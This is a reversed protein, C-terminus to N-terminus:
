KTHKCTKLEEQAGASCSVEVHCHQVFFHWAVRYNTYPLTVCVYKITGIQTSHAAHLAPPSSCLPSSDYFLSYCNRLGSTLGITILRWCLSCNPNSSISTCELPLVGDWGPCACTSTDLKCWYRGCICIIPLLSCLTYECTAREVWIQRSGNYM